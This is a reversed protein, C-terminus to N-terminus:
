IIDVTDLKAGAFLNEDSDVVLVGIREFAGHIKDSRKLALAQLIRQMKTVSARLDDVSGILMAYVALGEAMDPSHQLAPDDWVIKAGKSTDFALVTRREGMEVREVFRCVGSIFSGCIKLIGGKVSGFTNKSSPECRAYIIKMNADDRYHIRHFKQGNNEYKAAHGEPFSPNAWSWSPLSPTDKAPQPDKSTPLIEPSKVYDARFSSKYEETRRWLLGRSLDFEWLGAYYQSDIISSLQGALASLAVLRDTEYTLRLTSYIAVIELWFNAIELKSMGGSCIHAYAAKLGPPPLRLEAFPDRPSNWWNQNELRGCECKNCTKCEWFLEEAHVHVTRTALIREQFAWARALLPSADSNDSFSTDGISSFNSHGDSMFHPEIVDRAKNTSRKRVEVPGIPLTKNRYHGGMSGGFLTSCRAPFLGGLSNAAHTAAITLSSNTYVDGMKASEAEWDDLDNQVICLSDIWLFRIGLGRTITIADQFTPPLSAWAIGQIHHEINTTTTKLVGGESGWCHSLAVYEGLAGRTEILRVCGGVDLVRSPLSIDSPLYCFPHDTVCTEIWERTLKLFNELELDHPLLLGRTEHEPIYSILDITTWEELPTVKPERTDVIYSPPRDTKFGYVVIDTVNSSTNDGLVHNTIQSLLLCVDCGRTASGELDQRTTEFRIRRWPQSSDDGYGDFLRWELGFCTYCAATLCKCNSICFHRSIQYASDGDMNTLHLISNVPRGTCQNVVLV